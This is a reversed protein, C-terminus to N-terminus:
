CHHFLQVQRVRSSKPRTTLAYQASGFIFSWGVVQIDGVVVSKRVGSGLGFVSVRRPVCAPSEASHYIDPTSLSAPLSRRSVLTDGASEGAVRSGDRGHRTTRGKAPLTARTTALHTTRDWGSVRLYLNRLSMALGADRPNSGVM